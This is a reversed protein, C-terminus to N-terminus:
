QVTVSSPPDPVVPAPTGASGGGSLVPGGIFPNGAADKNAPTDTTITVGDVYLHQTAPANGNWYTFLFFAEAYTSADGLQIQDTLDAMLTNNKWIKVEGMGGQAKSKTDLTYHIEYTEWKGLAIANASTGIARVNGQGEYYFSFPATIQRHLAIDWVSGGANNIYLDNYGMNSNTPSATHVRM